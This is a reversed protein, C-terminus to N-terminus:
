FNKNSEFIFFNNCKENSCAMINTNEIQIMPSGCKHCKFQKQKNKRKKNKSTDALGSNILAEQLSAM